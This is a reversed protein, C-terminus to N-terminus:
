LIISFVVNPVKLLYCFIYYKMLQLVTYPFYNMLLNMTM